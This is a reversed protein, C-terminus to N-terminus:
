AEYVSLLKSNHYRKFGLEKMRQIAKKCLLEEYGSGKFEEKVV